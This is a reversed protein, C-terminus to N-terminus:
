PTVLAIASGNFATGSAFFIRYEDVCMPDDGNELDNMRCMHDTAIAEVVEGADAVTIFEIGMTDTDVAIIAYTGSKLFDAAPNVSLQQMTTTAITATTTSMYGSHGGTGLIDVGSPSSEPLYYSHVLGGVVRRAGVADHIERAKRIRDALDFTPLTTVTM